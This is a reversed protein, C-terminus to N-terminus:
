FSLNSFLFLCASLSSISILLKGSASSADVKVDITFMVDPYPEEPCCEYFWENVKTDRKIVKLGPSEVYDNMDLGEQRATLGIENGDYTWSQFKFPCTVVSPDDTPTCRTKFESPTVLFVDGTHKITAVLRDPFQPAFSDVRSMLVVDPVWIQFPPINLKHIDGYSKRDWSLRGDRWSMSMWTM